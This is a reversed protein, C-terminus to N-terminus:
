GALVELLLDIALAGGMVLVSIAVFRIGARVQSLGVANWGSLDKLFQVFQKM